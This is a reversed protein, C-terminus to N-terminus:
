RAIVKITKPRAEEAKPIRLTLVGNTLEAEAKASDLQEPLNIVRSFRGSPREHLLYSGQPEEKVKIEGQITVNENAIRIDIEDSSVGPLFASITYGESNATVDVPFLVQSRDVPMEDEMLRDMMRQRALMRPYSTRIMVPM